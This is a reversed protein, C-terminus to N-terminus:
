NKLENKYLGNRVKRRIEREIIGVIFDKDQNPISSITKQCHDCIFDTRPNPDHSYRRTSNDDYTLELDCNPCYCWLDEIGTYGWNWRWIINFFIDETYKKYENRKAIKLLQRFLLIFFVIWLVFSLIIILGNVYHGTILYHFVINKLFDKIVILIKVIFKRSPEIIMLIIGSLVSAITTILVEKKM